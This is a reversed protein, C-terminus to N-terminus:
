VKVKFCNSCIVHGDYVVTRKRAFLSRAYKYKDNNWVGKFGTHPMSGFDDAKKFQLCCPGIGGDWHFTATTWLWDCQTKAIDKMKSIGDAKDQTINALRDSTVGALVRFSDFGLEHALQRALDVQHRNHPFVLFQWTIYPKQKGLRKKTKILLRANGLAKEFDGKRRYISYIEQDAGDLSVSMYSLGSQILRVASDTDLEANLNSHINTCINNSEAYNIMEYIEKNLLPEGWNFLDVIYIHKGIEDIIKRYSDFTMFGKPRGFAGKGTPCHICKLDCVNNTDVILKYPSSYLYPSRLTKQCEALLLNLFKTASNYNLFAYFAQNERILSRLKKRFKM